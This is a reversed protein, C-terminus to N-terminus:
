QRAGSDDIVKIAIPETVIPKMRLLPIALADPQIDHAVLAAPEALVPITRVQAMRPSSRRVRPTRPAAGTTGTEPPVPALSPATANSAAQVNPPTRVSDPRSAPARLAIALVVAAAATAPVVLWARWHVPRREIRALVAGRLGASPGTETMVRAVDDILRDL